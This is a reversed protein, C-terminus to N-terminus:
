RGGIQGCKDMAAHALSIHTHEVAHRVQRMEISHLPGYQRRRFRLSPCPPYRVFAVASSQVPFPNPCCEVLQAASAESGLLGMAFMLEHSIRQGSRGLWSSPLCPNGQGPGTMVQPVPWM